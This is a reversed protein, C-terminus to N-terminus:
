EKVGLGEKKKFTFDGFARSLALDGNVRSHEVYHGAKEIRAKEEDQDPKHDWSLAIATNGRKLVGRSDGSNGCWIKDPTIILVCATCGVHDVLKDEERADKDEEYEQARAVEDMKCFAQELAGQYDKAKFEELEILINYFHDKTLKAVHDGGHGDFVGFLM